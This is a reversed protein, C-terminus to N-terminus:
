SAKSVRIVYILMWQDLTELIFELCTYTVLKVNKKFNSVFNSM